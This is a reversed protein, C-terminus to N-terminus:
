SISRCVGLRFVAPFVTTSTRRHVQLFQPPGLPREPGRRVEEEEADEAVAMLSQPSRPTKSGPTMSGGVPTKGGTMRGM